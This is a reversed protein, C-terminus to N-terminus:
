TIKLYKSKRRYFLVFQKHVLALIWINKKIANFETRSGRTTLLCSPDSEVRFFLCGPSLNDSSCIEAHLQLGRSNWLIFLHVLANGKQITLALSPIQISPNWWTNLINMRCVILLVSRKEDRILVNKWWYVNLTTGVKHCDTGENYNM